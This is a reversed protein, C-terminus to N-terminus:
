AMNKQRLLYWYWEYLHSECSCRCLYSSFFSNLAALYNPNLPNARPVRYIKGGLEEVEKEYLGPGNRHVLFDFQLVNRDIHRYLNMLYNEIGGPNLSTAVQLIRVPEKQSTM